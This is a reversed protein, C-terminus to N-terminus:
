RSRRAAPFDRSSVTTSPDLSRSGAAQAGGSLWSLVRDDFSRPIPEHGDEHGRGRCREAEQWEDEARWRALFDLPRHSLHDEAPQEAGCYEREDNHRGRERSEPPLAILREVPRGGRRMTLRSIGSMSIPASSRTPPM